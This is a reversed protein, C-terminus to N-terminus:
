WASVHGLMGAVFILHETDKISADWNLTQKCRAFALGAAVFAVPTHAARMYFLLLL